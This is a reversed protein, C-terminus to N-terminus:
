RTLVLRQTMAGGHTELHLFYLGAPLWQGDAKRGDWSIRTTGAEARGDHLVAVTRGAADVVRLRARGALPMTFHVGV